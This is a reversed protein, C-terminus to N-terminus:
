MYCSVFLNPLDAAAAHPICRAIPLSRHRRGLRRVKMPASLSPPATWTHADPSPGTFEPPLNCSYWTQRIRRGTSVPPSVSRDNMGEREALMVSVGSVKPIETPRRLHFGIVRLSLSSSMSQPKPEPGPPRPAYRRPGWPSQRGAKDLLGQAVIRTRGYLFYEAQSGGILFPQDPQGRDPGFQSVSPFLAPIFKTIPAIRERGGSRRCRALVAGRARGLLHLRLPVMRRTRRRRVTLAPDLM